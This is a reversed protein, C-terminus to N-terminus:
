NRLKISLRKSLSKNGAADRAQVKVKAKLKHGNKLSRKVSKLRKRTLKLRFKKKVGAKLTRRVTKFRLTRSSGPVAVTGSVTLKAKESLRVSVSLKDVDQSKKASAKVKPKVKDAGGTGGPGPGGPGGGTPCAAPAAGSNAAGPTPAGFFLASGNRQLSSSDAPAPGSQSGGLSTLMTPPCGYAVCHVRQTGDFATFCIQGAGQPLAVTLTAQGGLGSTPSAIVFPQTNDRPMFPNGLNQSGAPSGNANFVALGYDASDAPFPEDTGDLLEVFQKSPDGGSSLQLENVRMGHYTAAAGGAAVLGALLALTIAALARM